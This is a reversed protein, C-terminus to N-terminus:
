DGDKDSDDDGIDNRTDMALDHLDGASDSQKDAATIVAYFAARTIDKKSAKPHVKRVAELLQKPRTAPTALQSITQAIKEIESM